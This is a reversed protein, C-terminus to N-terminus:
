SDRNFTELLGSTHDQQSLLERETGAALPDYREAISLVQNRLRPDQIIEAAQRLSM